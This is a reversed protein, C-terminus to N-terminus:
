GHQWRSLTWCAPMLGSEVCAGSEDGLMTVGPGSIGSRRVRQETCVSTASLDRKQMISLLAQWM